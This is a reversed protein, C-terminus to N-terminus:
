GLSAKWGESREMKELLAILNDYRYINDHGEAVARARLKRFEETIETINERDPYMPFVGDYHKLGLEQAWRAWTVAATHQGSVALSESTGDAWHVSLDVSM